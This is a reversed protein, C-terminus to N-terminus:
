KASNKIIKLIKDTSDRKAFKEICKSLRKRDEPNESLLKVKELLLGCTLDKEEIIIAAGSDSLIKANKYQHNDTVNPSPILIAAAGVASIESLTVAGARCIVIDAAHLLTPMNDIYPLIRCGNRERSYEGHLNDSYNARGTAHIHKIRPAKSSYSKLLETAATNIAEAGLSGGFSLIFVDRECLGLARRASQRNVSYFDRRLPNGVTIIEKAGKLQKETEPYNILVKDCKKYIAKTALGASANSEHILTPIGLSAAASLVPWCVYGGTGLVIDPKVAKLIRKAEGRARVACFLSKLNKPSLSRKIGYIEIEYLNTAVSKMPANEKGGRRGIFTIECSEASALLAEAIALAPHVHGATGGGSLVIKMNVEM